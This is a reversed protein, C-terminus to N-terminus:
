IVHQRAILIEPSHDSSVFPAVVGVTAGISMGPVMGGGCLILVILAETGGLNGSFYFSHGTHRSGGWCFSQGVKLGSLAGDKAGQFMQHLLDNNPTPDLVQNLTIDEPVIPNGGILEINKPIFM